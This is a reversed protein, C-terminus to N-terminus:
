ICPTVSSVPLDFFAFFCVMLRLGRLLSEPCIMVTLMFCSAKPSATGPQGRTEYICSVNLASLRRCVWIMSACSGGVSGVHPQFNRIPFASSILTFFILNCHYGSSSSRTTRQSHEQSRSSNGITSRSGTIAFIHSVLMLGNLESANAALLQLMIVAITKSFFRTYVLM